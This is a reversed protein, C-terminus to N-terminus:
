IRFINSNDILDYNVCNNKIYMFGVFYHKSYILAISPSVKIRKRNEEWIEEVHTGGIFDELGMCFIM